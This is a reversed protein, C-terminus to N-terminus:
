TSPSFPPATAPESWVATLFINKKFYLLSGVGLPEDPASLSHEIRWAGRSKSVAAHVSTVLTPRHQSGVGRDKSLQSCCFPGWLLNKKIEGTDAQERKWFVKAKQRWSGKRCRGEAVRRCGAQVALKLKVECCMLSCPFAIGWSKFWWAM